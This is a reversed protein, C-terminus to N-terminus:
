NTYSRTYSQPNNQQWPHYVLVHTNVFVNYNTIILFIDIVLYGSQPQRKYV